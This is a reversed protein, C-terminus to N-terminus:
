ARPATPTTRIADTVTVVVLNDTRTRSALESAVGRAPSVTSTEALWHTCAAPAPCATSVVAVSPVAAPVSRHGCGFAPGIATPANAAPVSLSKCSSTMGHPRPRGAKEGNTADRQAAAAGACRRNFLLRLGRQVIRTRVHDVAAGHRLVHDADIVTM